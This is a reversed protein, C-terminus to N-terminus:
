RKLLVIFLIIMGLLCWSLYTPLIGNHIYRLVGNIAFTINTGINYIDFVKKRALTYMFKLFGIEEITNYFETGSVRMEPHDDIKEGGVFVDSQRTKMATGIFYIILGVAIGLIILASALDADWSGFFAVRQEVGLSPFIFIDLPIQYAFIGFIVCLIGLVIIPALMTPNTEHTENKTPKNTQQSTPQGLFVAHILKMFSALTLASGFMAAMLFIVWIHGVQRSSEIIGQYVMWKSVFGNFPPIGSIAFSAILFGIFTFPMIKALGGLSSLDTTKAEKEVAGGSLFLCSKYIAHNLMHFIGGAIGVPNGTGIGLVMYGVQSVAHYGLLRKLDHQVLAMMVAAFVTFAGVVMLFLNMAKDMVFMDLSLRALFYIGLLKDLSAPLFATVSTPADEATDPVWTHFPMAGAKAFAGIALTIYAMHAVKTDLAIKISSMQLLGTLKWILALGLLMVADTGGIIIFTKKATAPTNEKNGFGILLYLLLGLFGWFIMFLILNDSFVAGLSAMMTAIIYLYYSILGKEKRMFGISYIGILLSFFVIFIGVFISLNDIRFLSLAM